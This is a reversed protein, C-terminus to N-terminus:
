SDARTTPRQGVYRGTGTVCECGCRPRQRFVATDLYIEHRAAMAAVGGGGGHSFFRVVGLRVVISSM